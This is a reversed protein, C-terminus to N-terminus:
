PLRGIAKKALDTLAGNAKDGTGHFDLFYGGAAFQLENHDSSYWCALDGVGSVSEKTSCVFQTLNKIGSPNDPAAWIDISVSDIGETSTYSCNSITATVNAGVPQSGVVLPSPEIIDGGLAAAVEDKTLLSCPDGLDGGGNNSAATATAASTGNAAATRTATGGASTSNGQANTTATSKNGGGNDDGGGCASFAFAALLLIPVIGFIIRAHRM